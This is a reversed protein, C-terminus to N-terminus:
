RMRAGMEQGRDFCCTTAGASPGLSEVRLRTRHCFTEERHLRLTAIQLARQM